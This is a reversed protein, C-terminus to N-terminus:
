TALFNKTTLGFLTIAQAVVIAGVLYLINWPIHEPIWMGGFSVYIWDEATGTCNSPLPEDNAADPCYNTKVFDYFPTGFVPTIPTDDNEFQSAMLGELGYHLPFTWYAWVWYELMKQPRILIGGFISSMGIFLAGFGQATQSDRFLSMFAQGFFTFTALLLTMFLYYLWFKGAGLSFGVTFYWLICFIMSAIMIFPVEVLFFALNVAGQDYMLSNKHRYFMNREMEFVPLVTNLANVALFLATIYISTVRSNMDGETKPVRQSAFVSGFLLAVIASVFLRVRNYGPSRCYIKSLRKYVEISQIRTTTAYKTPFTIKNDASPSENMKDISEICDKALTSHAYARAYDFTDQSSSSGAGINTLMWTAANEGTKIKTTSDYGELYEILKSSEHGLDGFFVTEGGRKLLLLSDFSNFIAISPQHITAVVSIGADAIRRLGRMVISAARADLGSTPEDLFIISPNSALEVAISLRKKQEFSLGGTADSGVLLHGITDLELMQLVQDVYKQKSEMPIAEDLRMKASFEVTERVTLQPSQTDFQEVYGTCRRFSKAEQPFGNLRIDGTIEGSTKRLSLVDMLTTKGAGSSGMLATLTGSQFHGSVGKLLEITDKTTSATVTYHVDKFTLTAGKAPLSVRRSASVSESPSNDEDNIKNGGGLSKGSAFRVHNLCFVSTFISVISLGTCFLVTYWVWVYEYAEGKFTFGFRM